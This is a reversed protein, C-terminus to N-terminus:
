TCSTSPCGTGPTAAPARVRAGVRGAADVVVSKPVAPASDREDKALDADPHGLTYGFIRENWRVHGDIARAYPDILLKAPNFRHGARPEYPGHM